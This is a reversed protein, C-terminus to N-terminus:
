VALGENLLVILCAQALILGAFFLPYLLSVPMAFSHIAILSSPTCVM